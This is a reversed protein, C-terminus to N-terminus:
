RQNREGIQERQIEAQHRGSMLLGRYCRIVRTSTYFPAVAPVFAHVIGVFGALVLALSGRFAVRWHDWYGQPCATEAPHRLFLRRWLSILAVEQAQVEFRTTTSM